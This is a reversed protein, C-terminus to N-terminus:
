GCAVSVSTPLPDCSSENRASAEAELQAVHREGARIGGASILPMVGFRVNEDLSRADVVHRERHELRERAPERHYRGVHATDWVDGGVAYVAKECRIIVVLRNGRPDQREDFRRRIRALKGCGRM